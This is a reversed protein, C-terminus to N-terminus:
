KEDLDMNGRDKKNEPHSEPYRNPDVDSNKDRNEPNKQNIIGEGSTSEEEKYNEVNRARKVVESNGSEDKERESKLKGEKPNYDEPINKGSFGENGEGQSNKKENNWKKDGLDKNNESTSM